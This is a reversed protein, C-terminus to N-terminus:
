KARTYKVTSYSSYKIKGSVTRYARVKYYYRQGKKLSKNTYYTSKTTKVLKYKGTKSTARYLKYGTAGSIKNWRVTIKKSGPTLKTITPKTLTPTAYRSSSSASYKKVGDVVRYAKIKYYYKTGTKLSTNLCSTTSGGTVYKLYYYGKKSPNYRYIKYGHAGSVPKWTLKISSYGNRAAKFYTPTLLTPAASVKATQSSELIKDGATTFASLKYYYTKGTTLERDIDSTTTGGAITRCEKYTGNASDSRYIKYGEAGYVEDWTLKVSSYGNRAAKFNEPTEPKIKVAVDNILKSPKVGDGYLTFYGKINTDKKATDFIPKLSEASDGTEYALIFNGDVLEKKTLAPGPYGDACKFSVIDDDDFAGLFDAVPVGQAFKTEEGNSTSYKYERTINDKGLIEARTYSRGNIKIQKSLTDGFVITLCRTEGNWLPNNYDYADLQGVILQIKNDNWREFEGLNTIDTNGKKDTRAWAIVPEAEVGDKQANFKNQENQNDLDLVGINPYYYRKNAFSNTYIPQEKSGPDKQQPDFKVEYNDSALFRIVSSSILNQVGAEKLLAEVRVGETKYISKTNRTNLASFMYTNDASKEPDKEAIAKIEDMTYVKENAINAENYSNGGVVDTGTIVIVPSVTTDTEAAHAASVGIGGFCMTIMMAIAMIVSLGRKTLVNM